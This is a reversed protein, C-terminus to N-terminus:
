RATKQTTLQPGIPNARIARIAPTIDYAEILGSNSEVIEKGPEAKRDPPEPSPSVPGAYAQKGEPAPLVELPEAHYGSIVSFVAQSDGNGALM